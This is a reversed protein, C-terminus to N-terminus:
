YGSLKTPLIVRLNLSLFSVLIHIVNDTIIALREDYSWKVANPWSCGTSLTFSHVSPDKETDPDEEDIQDIQEAM